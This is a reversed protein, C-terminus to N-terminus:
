RPRGTVIARAESAPRRMAIPAGPLPVSAVARDSSVSSPRGVLPSVM